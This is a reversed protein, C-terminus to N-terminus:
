TRGSRTAAHVRMLKRVLERAIRLTAGQSANPPLQRVERQARVRLTPQSGLRALDPRMPKLDNVFAGRPTGHNKDVITMYKLPITGRWKM